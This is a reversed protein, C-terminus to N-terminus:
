MRRGRSIRRRELVEYKKREALIKKYKISCKIRMGRPKRCDWYHISSHLVEVVVPIEERAKPLVKTYSNICAVIISNPHVLISNERKFHRFKKRVLLRNKSQRMASRKIAYNDIKANKPCIGHLKPFDIEIKM